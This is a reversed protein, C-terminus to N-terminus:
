HAVKSPKKLGSDQKVDLKPAPAEPLPAKGGAKGPAPAVPPTLGLLAMGGESILPPLILAGTLATALALNLSRRVITNAWAEQFRRVWTRKAGHTNLADFLRRMGVPDRARLGVKMVASLRSEWKFDMAVEFQDHGVACAVTMPENRVLRPLLDALADGGGYLALGTLSCDEVMLMVKADLRPVAVRVRQNVAVRPAQRWGRYGPLVFPFLIDRNVLMLAMAVMMLVYVYHVYFLSPMTRAPLVFALALLGLCEGILVYLFVSHRRVILSALVLPMVVYCVALLATHWPPLEALSRWNMATWGLFALPSAAFAVCMTKLSQPLFRLRSM